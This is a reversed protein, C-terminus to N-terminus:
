NDGTEPFHGYGIEPAVDLEEESPWVVKGNGHSAIHTGSALHADDKYCLTVHWGLPDREHRGGRSTTPHVDSRILVAKPYLKRDRATQYALAILSEMRKRNQPMMGEYFYYKIMNITSM